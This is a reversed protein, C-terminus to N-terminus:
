VKKRSFMTIIGTFLLMSIITILASLPSFSMSFIAHLGASTLYTFGILIAFAIVVAIVTILKEERNKM